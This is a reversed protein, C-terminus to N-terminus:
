NKQYVLNFILVGLLCGVGNALVDLVEFSRSSCLFRQFIEMSLGYAFALAVAYFKIKYRRYSFIFQKYLAITFLLALVAYMFGHIIKDIGEPGADPIERGPMLSFFLILLLWFISPTFHQLSLKM